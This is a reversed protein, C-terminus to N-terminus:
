PFQISLIRKCERSIAVSEKARRAIQEIIEETLPPPKLTIKGVAVLKLLEDDTKIIGDAFNVESDKTMADHAAKPILMSKEGGQPNTFNVVVRTGQAWPKSILFYPHPNTARGDYPDWWFLSGLPLRDM